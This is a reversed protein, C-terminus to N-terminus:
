PMKMMGLEQELSRISKGLKIATLSNPNNEKLLKKKLTLVLYRKERNEDVPEPEKYQNERIWEQHQKAKNEKLKLLSMRRKRRQRKQQMKYAVRLYKQQEKAKKREDEAKRGARLEDAKQIQQDRIKRLNEIRSQKVGGVGGVNLEIFLHLLKEHLNKVKDDKSNQHKELWTAFWHSKFQAPNGVAWSSNKRAKEADHAIDDVTECSKSAGDFKEFNFEIFKIMQLKLKLNRRIKSINSQVKGKFNNKLQFTTRPKQLAPEDIIDKKSEGSKGSPQDPQKAQEKNEQSPRNNKKEALQEKMNVEAQGPQKARGKNEQSSGNNKKEAPPQKMEVWAAVEEKLLAPVKNNSVLSKIQQMCTKKKKPSASEYEQVQQLFLEQFKQLDSGLLTHLKQISQKFVGSSGESLQQQIDPFSRNIWELYEKTALPMLKQLLQEEKRQWQEKQMKRLQNKVELEEKLKGAFQSLQAGSFTQQNAGELAFSQESKLQEVFGGVFHACLIQQKCACRQQKTKQSIENHRAQMTAKFAGYAIKSSEQRKEIPVLGMQKQSMKRNMKKLEKQTLSSKRSPRRNGLDPNHNQLQPINYKSRKKNIIHWPEQGHINANRKHFPLQRSRPVKGKRPVMSQLALEINRKRSAVVRAQFQQKLSPTKSQRSQLRHHSVIPKVNMFELATEKPGLNRRQTVKRRQTAKRRQMTVCEGFASQQAVGALMSIKSFAAM